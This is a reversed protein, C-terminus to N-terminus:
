EIRVTGVVRAIQKVHLREHRVAIRDPTRTQGDHPLRLVDQTARQISVSPTSRDL